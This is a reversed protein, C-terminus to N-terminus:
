DKEQLLAKELRDISSEWFKRAETIWDSIASLGEPQVSYIRRQAQRRRRVLGTEHLVSLHQSVAPGSISFSQAIQGASLEGERLLRDVIAFRVPDALAAFSNTLNSM